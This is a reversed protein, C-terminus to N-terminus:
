PKREHFSSNKDYAISRFISVTPLKGLTCETAAYSHARVYMMMTPHTSPFPANTNREGGTSRKSLDGVIVLAARRYPGRTPALLNINKCNIKNQKVPTINFTKKVFKSLKKQVESKEKASWHGLTHPSHYLTSQELSAM